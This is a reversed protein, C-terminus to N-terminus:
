IQQKYKCYVEEVGSCDTFEVGTDWMDRFEEDVRVRVRNMFLGRVGRCSLVARDACADTHKAIKPAKIDISVNDLTIDSITGVKPTIIHSGYRAEVKIDKLSINKLGAESEDQIEMPHSVNTASVNQIHVDEITVHGSGVYGSILCFLAGAQEVTLNSVRVHRIVGQGVGFRIGCACTSLVCNTITIYECTRTKDKLRHAANRIAIADDGTLIICDSVTVHRCADIDLGDTNCFYPPNLVKIGKATVVDCGHWFCAWCPTNTITVDQVVVDKCEVFCILQGPRLKEKDKAQAVGHMWYSYQPEWPEEFFADGSGDIVGNGTIAVDEQEIVLIFHQGLWQEVECSYNQQYADLVNYDERNKSAILRAGHEIHLEVHSKLCITGSVYSGAPIVVRGGGSAACADIAAQIVETFVGNRVKKTRYDLINTNM